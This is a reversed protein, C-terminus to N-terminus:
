DCKTVIFDKYKYTFKFTEKNSEIYTSVQKKADEEDTAFVTRTFDSKNRIGKYTTKLVVCYRSKTQPINLKKGICFDEEEVLKSARAKYSCEKLISEVKLIRNYNDEFMKMFSEDNSLHTFLSGGNNYEMIVNKIGRRIELLANHRNEWIEKKERIDDINSLDHCKLKDLYIKSYYEKAHMYDTELKNLLDEAIFYIDIYNHLLVNLQKFVPVISTCDEPWKAKNDEFTQLIDKMVLEKQESISKVELNNTKIITSKKNTIKREGGKRKNMVKIRENEPLDIVKIYNQGRNKCNIMRQYCQKCVKHKMNYYKELHGGCDNCAVM